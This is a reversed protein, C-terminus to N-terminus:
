HRITAAHCRKWLRMEDPIDLIDSRVIWLERHHSAIPPRSVHRFRARPRRPGSRSSACPARGTALCVM